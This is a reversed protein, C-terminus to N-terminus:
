GRKVKVVVMTEDDNQEALGAFRRMDWVVQELVREASAEPETSLVAAIAERLRARGYRKGEFNMRDLVGDTYAVVVDGPSLVRSQSVYEQGSLVGAVLGTAKLEVIEASSRGGAPMLLPPDHGASGFTVTRSAPDVVGYWITAFEHTLTDRCLARNVRALLLGADEEDDAYARLSSRVSSMLLAAGIGKGVVDGIVVGVKGNLDILDFFDGGLEFCPECRAAIEFGAVVPMVQPLMRSQIDTALALQRQIRKEEQEIEALRAQHVAAGAQQGLSRILKLDQDSFARPERGYLRILGILRGGFVLGASLFSAVGEAECRQPDLVEPEELLDPVSVVEGGLVRRDFVRQRSLPLSSELWARSLNRSAALRLEAEDDRSPFGDSDSPFLVLSGADLELASLASDLTAELVSTLNVSSVLLSSLRQLAELAVVRQRLELVDNCLESATAGVLRLVAELRADREGGSSSEAEIRGIVEGDVVLPVSFGAAEASIDSEDIVWRALGEGARVRRGSEDRLMVARGSLAGIEDCLRALNGDTLFEALSVGGRAASQKL